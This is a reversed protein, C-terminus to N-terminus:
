TISEWTLGKLMPNPKSLMKLTKKIRPKRLDKLDINCLRIASTWASVARGGDFFYVKGRGNFRENPMPGALFGPFRLRCDPGNWKFKFERM